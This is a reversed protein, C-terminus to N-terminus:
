ISIGHLSILIISKYRKELKKQAIIDLYSQVKSLDDNVKLAIYDNVKIYSNSQSCIQNIKEYNETIILLTNVFDKQIYDSILSFSTVLNNYNESTSIFKGMLSNKMEPSIPISRYFQSYESLYLKVLILDDFPNNDRLDKM